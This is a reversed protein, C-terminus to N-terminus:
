GTCFLEAAEKDYYYVSNALVEDPAVQTSNIEKVIEKLALYNKSDKKPMLIVEHVSSPLIYFNDDLEQACLRLVEPYLICAAGWLKAENSLVYMPLQSATNQLMDETEALDGERLVERLVSEMTELNWPLLRPSNQCALRYLQEESTNWRKMHQNNIMISAKGYFPAEEVMYYYVISLDLINRHPIDELLKRNKERHILKYLIKESAKSFDLFSRLDISKGLKPNGFEEVLNDAISFIDDKTMEERYYNDVYITPSANCNERQVVLGNLVIGNNKRVEKWYIQYDEGLKQQIRDKMINIFTTFNISTNM